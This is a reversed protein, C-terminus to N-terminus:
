TFTVAAYVPIELFRQRERRRVVNRQNLILLAFLLLHVDPVLLLDM